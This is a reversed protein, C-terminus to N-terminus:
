VTGADGVVAEGGEGDIDGAVVRRESGSPVIGIDIVEGSEVLIVRKAFEDRRLIVGSEIEGSEVHFLM